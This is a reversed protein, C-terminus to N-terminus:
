SPVDAHRTADPGGPARDAGHGARTRLRLVALGTLAAVTAAMLAGGAVGIVAILWGPQGEQWLPTTVGSFVALAVLWAGATAPVWWGAGRIHRRLVRWQFWGMAALLVLGLAALVAPHWTFVHDGLVVPLAGVTWAVAAGGATARVWEVTGGAPLATRLAYAQAMGLVVGEVAGAMVVAAGQLLPGIGWAGWAPDGAVAAGVLAPVAFGLVEGLTVAVVWRRWLRGSDEAVPTAPELRVTVAVADQLALPLTDRGVSAAVARLAAAVEAPDRSVTAHGARDIGRLRVAVRGDAELNRWWTRSRRSM